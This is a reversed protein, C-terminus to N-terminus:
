SAKQIVFCSCFLDCGEPTCSYQDVVGLGRFGNCFDRCDAFHDSCWGSDCEEYYCDATFWYEDQADPFFCQCGYPDFWCPESADRAGVSPAFCLVSLLLVLVALKRKLTM